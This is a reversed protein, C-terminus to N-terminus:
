RILNTLVERRGIAAAYTEQDDFAGFVDVVIGSHDCIAELIEEPPKSNRLAWGGKVLVPVKALAVPKSTFAIAAQTALM